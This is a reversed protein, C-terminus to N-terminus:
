FLQFCFTQDDEWRSLLVRGIGEQISFLRVEDFNILTIKRSVQCGYLRNFKKLNPTGGLLFKVVAKDLLVMVQAIRELDPFVYLIDSIGM